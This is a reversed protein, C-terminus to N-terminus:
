EMYIKNCIERHQINKKNIFWLKFEKHWIIKFNTKYYEKEHFSIRLSILNNKSEFRTLTINLVKKRYDLKKNMCRICIIDNKSYCNKQFDDTNKLVKYIKCIDCIGNKKVYNVKNSFFPDIFKQICVSGVAFIQGTDKHVINYLTSCKKCSCICTSYKHKKSPNAIFEKKLDSYKTYTYLINLIEEKKNAIENHAEYRFWVGEKQFLKDNM